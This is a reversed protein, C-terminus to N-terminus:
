NGTQFRGYNSASVIATAPDLVLWQDYFVKGILAQSNPIGLQYTAAGQPDTVLCINALGPFYLLCGPFGYIGLDLPFPTGMHFGLWIAGLSAPVTNTLDIVLTQGLQSSGSMTLAPTLSGAGVCGHGFVGYSADGFNVRMKFATNGGNTGTTQGAYNELYVRQNTNDRRMGGSAGGSGIVLFEVVLNDTGNYVFPVQLDVDNWTNATLHWEWNQVDMTTVSGAALNADFNTSLTPSALHAMKMTVRTFSRIGTAAPALGFGHIVGPGGLETARVLAQYRMDTTGFPFVNITGSSPTNTPIYFSQAPLAAALLALALLSTRM